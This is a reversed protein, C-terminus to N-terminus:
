LADPDPRDAMVLEGMFYQEQFAIRELVEERGPVRGDVSVIWKDECDNLRHYVGTVRGSFRELPGDAGFLYVDQEAGDGAIVGDVYGYNLPYVMDPHRPHRSGLPRDVTGSVLKGLIGSDDRHRIAMRYVRTESGHRDRMVQWFTFGYKEYLGIEETSLYLWQHGEAKALAYARQLLLGARRRGRHAPDTHVFGAWPTLAPDPIEDQAAYTCYSILEEGETLLLVRAGPGYLAEFRGERLARALFPGARWECRAMQEVWIEPVSGACVTIEM